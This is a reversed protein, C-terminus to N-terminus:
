NGPLQFLPQTPTPTPVGTVRLQGVIWDYVESNFNAFVEHNSRQENIWDQLAFTKLQERDESDLQRAQAVESVMFFIVNRPNETDVILDSLVGVPLNFLTNEYQFGTGRPLWGRDGGLRVIEPNDRSFERVIEKFALAREQPTALGRLADEAKTKMIEIEDGVDMVIQHVHVQPAVSPIQEGIFERFKARLVSRRILARHEEESLGVSNLYQKYRENYDRLAQEGGLGTIEGTLFSFEVQLDIEEQTVTIGYQAAEQAMIENEIMAQLSEFIETSAAFDVGFFSASRQTVRLTKVLDGRTYEVDDVRIIVERPPLVFQVVYGAVLVGAVILVAIGVVLWIARQRAKTFRNRVARHRRDSVTEKQSPPKRRGKDNAM